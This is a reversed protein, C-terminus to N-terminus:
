LTNWPMTPNAALSLALVSIIILWVVFTGRAQAQAACQQHDRNWVSLPVVKGCACHMQSEPPKPPQPPAPYNM